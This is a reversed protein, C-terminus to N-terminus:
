PLDDDVPPPRQGVGFTLLFDVNAVGEGSSSVTVQEPSLGCADEIDCIMSDGDRDTGAAVIYTGPAVAPTTYAYGQAANTEVEAVVESGDATLVRVITPGADGVSVDGITM